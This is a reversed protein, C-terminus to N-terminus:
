KKLLKEIGKCWEKYAAFEKCKENVEIQEKIKNYEAQLAPYNAKSSQEIRYYLNMLKENATKLISCPAGGTPAPTKKREDLINNYFNTAKEHADLAANYKEITAILNQCEKYKNFQPDAINNIRKDKSAPKAKYTKVTKEPIGPLEATESNIQFTEDALIFAKKDLLEIIKLLDDNKCPDTLNINLSVEATTEVITKSKAKKGKEITAIYLLMKMSCTGLEQNKIIFKFVAGPPECLNYMKAKGKGKGTEVGEIQLNDLWDNGMSKVTKKPKANKVIDKSFYLDKKIKSVDKIFMVGSFLYIPREFRINKIELQLLSEEKDWNLVAPLTLGTPKGEKGLLKLTVDIDANPVVEVPTEQSFGKTVFTCLFILLLFKLKM